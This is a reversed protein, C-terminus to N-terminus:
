VQGFLLLIRQRAKCTWNEKVNIRGSHKAKAQRFQNTRFLTGITQGVTNQKTRVSTLLKRFVLIFALRSNTALWLDDLSANSWNFGKM